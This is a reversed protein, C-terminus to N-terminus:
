EESADQFPELVDEVPKADPYWAVIRRIVEDLLADPCSAGSTLVVDVPTDDVPFWNETTVVEHRHLDFHEIEAAGNFESAGRIFYTPM